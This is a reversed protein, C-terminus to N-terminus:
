SSATASALSEDNPSPEFAHVVSGASCSRKAVSRSAPAVNMLPMTVEYGASGNPPTL